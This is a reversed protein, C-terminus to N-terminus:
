LVYTFLQSPTGCRSGPKRKANVEGGSDLFAMVAAEDGDAAAEVAATTRAQVNIVHWLMRSFLTNEAHKTIEGM